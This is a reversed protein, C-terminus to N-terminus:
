DLLDLLPQYAVKESYHSNAYKECKDGLSNRYDSDSLATLANTWTEVNDCVLFPADACQDMGEAGISTTILPVGFCVAEVNKIKLGSGFRIPNIIVHNDEYFSELNDVFGHLTVRDSKSEVGSCVSGSVNVHFNMNQVTPLVQNIFWNIGDVNSSMQSGLFGMQLVKNTTPKLMKFNVAHPVYVANSLGLQQYTKLDDSQIAIVTDFQKLVGYEESKNIRLGSDKNNQVFSKYRRYGVDHTDIVLTAMKKLKNSISHIFYALRTYEFLIIDPKEEDLYARFKALETENFFHYLTPTYVAPSKNFVSLILDTLKVMVLNFFNKVKLVEDYAEKRKKEQQSSFSISVSHQLAVQEDDEKPEGVFYVNLESRLSLFNLMKDIRQHSGIKRRWFRNDTLVVIKKLPPM